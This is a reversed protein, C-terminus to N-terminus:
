TMLLVERVTVGIVIAVLVGPLGILTPVPGNDITIVGQGGVPGVPLVLDFGREVLVGQAQQGLLVPPAWKAPVGQERRVLWGL